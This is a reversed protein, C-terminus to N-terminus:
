GYKKLREDPLAPQTEAPTPSIILTPTPTPTPAVKGKWVVAGGVTLLIAGIVLLVAILGLGKQNKM